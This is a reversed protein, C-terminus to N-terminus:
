YKCSHINDTQKDRQRDLQEGTRGYAHIGSHRSSFRSFVWMDGCTVGHLWFCSICLFSRHILVDCQAVVIGHDTDGLGTCDNNGDACGDSGHGEGGDHVRGFVLASFM